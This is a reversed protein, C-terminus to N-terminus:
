ARVFRLVRGGVERLGAARAIRRIEAEQGHLDGGVAHPEVLLVSVSNLHQYGTLIATESGETDVKLGACPPLEAADFTAVEVWQDLLQSCPPRTDDADRAWRVDDRLSCEHRGTRGEYLRMTEASRPHVVAANHVEVPLGAVNSQLLTFTDPHPEFSTVRAGPWRRLAYWAFGGVHAGVDLIEPERLDPLSHLGYEDYLSAIMDLSSRPCQFVNTVAM